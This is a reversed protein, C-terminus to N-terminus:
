QCQSAAIRPRFWRRERGVAHGVLQDSRRGCAFPEGMAAVIAFLAEGREIRDICLIDTIKAKGPEGIELGLAPLFSGRQHM